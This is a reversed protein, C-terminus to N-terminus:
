GNINNYAGTEITSGEADEGLVTSRSIQLYARQVTVTATHSHHVRRHRRMYLGAMVVGAGEHTGSRWM